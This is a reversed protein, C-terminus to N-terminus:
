NCIYCIFTKSQNCQGCLPKKCIDCVKNSKNRCGSSSCPRRKRPGVDVTSSSKPIPVVSADDEGSIYSLEIALDLLFDRIHMTKKTVGQYFVM